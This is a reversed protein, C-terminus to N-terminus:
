AFRLAAPHAVFANMCIDTVPLDGDCRRSIFPILPFLINAAEKKCSVQM